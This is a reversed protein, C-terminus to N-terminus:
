VAGLDLEPGESAAVDVPREQGPVALGVAGDAPHYVLPDVRGHKGVQGGQGAVEFPGGGVQGGPAAGAEAEVWRSAPARHGPVTSNSRPSRGREPAGVPPSSPSGRWRPTRTSMTSAM